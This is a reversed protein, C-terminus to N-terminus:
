RELAGVDLARVGDHNGDRCFVRSAGLAPEPVLGLRRAACRGAADLAPSHAVLRLDRTRDVFLSRATRPDSDNVLINGGGGMGAGDTWTPKERAVIINARAVLISPSCGAYCILGGDGTGNMAVSNHDVVTGRVPGFSDQPGRTVVFYGHGVASTVTNRTIRTDSTHSDGLEVFTSNDRSSNAVITTRRAGYVEIASGEIGYDPSPAHHGSIRNRSVTTGTGQVLVGNVGSDDNPGDKGPSLRRNDFLVNGSVVANEASETVHVGVVNGSASSSTVADGAGEISIGSWVGDRVALGSVQLHDGVLRVCDDGGQIVPAAGPGTALVRIPRAATGSSRLTLGGAYTAGRRLLLVSGPTLAEQSARALTRWPRAATGPGADDGSPSVVHVSGAGVALRTGSTVAGRVALSVASSRIATPVDSRAGVAATAAQAAPPALLAAGAALALSATWRRPSSPLM